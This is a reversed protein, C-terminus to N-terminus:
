LLLQPVQLLAVQQLRLLVLLTVPVLQLVQLLDIVIVTASAATTDVTAHLLVLLLM